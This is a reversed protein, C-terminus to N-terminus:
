LPINPIPPIYDSVLNALDSGGLPIDPVTIGADTLFDEVPGFNTLEGTVAVTDGSKTWGGWNDYSSEGAGLYYISARNGVKSLGIKVRTDSLPFIEGVGFTIRADKINKTQSNGSLSGGGLLPPNFDQIFNNQPGLFGTVSTTEINSAPSSNYISKLDSQEKTGVGENFVSKLNELAM